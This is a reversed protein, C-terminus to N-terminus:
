VPVEAATIREGHIEDGAANYVLLWYDEGEEIGEFEVQMKGATISMSGDEIFEMNEDHVRYTVTGTFLSPNRSTGAWIRTELALITEIIETVNVTVVQAVEAPGDSNSASRNVIYTNDDGYVPAEVFAMAGTSSNITFLAQDAGGSISYVPPEFSTASGLSPLATTGELVQVTINAPMVPPSVPALFDNLTISAENSVWEGPKILYRSLSNTGDLVTVSATFIIHGDELIGDEPVGNLGIQYGDPTSAQTIVLQMGTEPSAPITEEPDEPDPRTAGQFITGAGGVPDVLDKYIYGAQPLFNVNVTRTIGDVTISLQKVPNHAATTNAPITITISTSTHSSVTVAGDSFEATPPEDVNICTIVYSGGRRITGPASVIQFINSPLYDPTSFQITGGSQRGFKITM